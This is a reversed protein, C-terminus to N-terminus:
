VGTLANLVSTFINATGGSVLSLIALTGISILAALLAYEILDQGADEGVLRRIIRKM